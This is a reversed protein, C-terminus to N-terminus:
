YDVVVGKVCIQPLSLCLSWLHPWLPKPKFRAGGGHIHVIEFGAERPGEM